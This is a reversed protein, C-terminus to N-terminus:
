GSFVMFRPSTTSTSQGKQSRVGPSENDDMPQSVSAPPSRSENKRQVATQNCKMLMKAAMHKRWVLQCRAICHLSVLRRAAPHGPSLRRLGPRANRSFRRGNEENGLERKPVYAALSRKSEFGRRIIVRDRPLTAAKSGPEIGQYSAGLPSLGHDLQGFRLHLGQFRM